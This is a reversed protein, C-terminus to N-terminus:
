FSPKDMESPLWVHFLRSKAKNYFDNLFARREIDSVGTQRILTERLPHHSGILFENRSSLRGLLDIHPLKDFKGGVGRNCSVCSLVLNWVGDIQQFRDKKLTDPFFHDVDVNSGDNVRINAFCYFCKGKQYGNLASRCSTVDKRRKRSDYTFLQNNSQDHEVTILSKSIGLEWAREVLRWRSEVEIALNSSQVGSVLSSFEDTIRIGANQKREDIYFKKQVEGSGVFHFADIVNNFGLRVTEETLKAQDDGDIGYRRCSELFSSSASTTQKPSVKLHECIHRSFVPALDSLKLLQGSQPNLELLTKALSIKYSAVNRGFLIIGRWYDEIQPDISIFGESVM